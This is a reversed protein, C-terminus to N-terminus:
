TSVALTRPTRTFSAAQPTGSSGSLGERESGDIDQVAYNYLAKKKAVQDSTFSVRYDFNFDSGASSVWKFRWRMRTRYSELQDLPARSAAIMTVDRHNLQTTMGDFHDAWFSCHPCGAKWDPGFMFHYVVLQSRGEFLESLTQKGGPTEFVYPVDVKVWPLERRLRSLDDRLRDFEKEKVLLEQRRALWEDRSAVPHKSGDITM